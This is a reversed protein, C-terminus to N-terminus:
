KNIVEEMIEYFRDPADAEKEIYEGDRPNDFEIKKSHLLQGFEKDIVEKGYVPDNVIPFGIYAM